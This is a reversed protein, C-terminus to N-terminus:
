SAEIRVTECILPKIWASLTAIRQLLIRDHVNPKGRIENLRETDLYDTLCGLNELRERLERANTSLLAHRNAAAMRAKGVRWCVEDPLLGDMARRLVVRTWGNQLSQAPPLSLCYQLLRIDMFPLRPEIEHHAGYHNMVELGESIAPSSLQAQQQKRASDFADARREHFQRIRERVDYEEVVDEKLVESSVPSDLTQAEAEEERWRRPLLLDRWHQRYLKKQSITFYYPLTRAAKAFQLWRKQQALSRLQPRAYQAFLAGASSYMEEFPQKHDAEAYREALHLVERSFADWKGDQVLEKLYLTGHGVATDGDFGNLMVRVGCRQAQEYSAWIMYHMGGVIYDDVVEYIEDLDSLPGRADGSIWHPTFGGHDLVAQAYEREDSEPASDFTYSFTHLTDGANEPLTDRAVRAVASSDLGGSLDSGVPFASRTRCRVAEVFLERFREAYEEDSRGPQIDVELSWYRRLDLGEPTATLTHAPPLRLVDKYITAEDDIQTRLLLDLMRKMNVREPVRGSAMVSKIESAFIVSAGDDAYYYFPRIGIHDRACFLKQQREDWIAFAFAGILHEVCGEGWKEYAHLILHSDPIVENKRSRLRLASLLDGRNDIRADATIVCKAESHLYPLEEYFSEPTTRLMCHGLGVPGGTWVDRGDPGRHSMRGLMRRIRSAAVPRSDLHYIGAVGSM